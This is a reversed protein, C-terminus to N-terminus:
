FGAKNLWPSSHFLELAKKVAVIESFFADVAEIPGFFLGCVMGKYDRLVGGCGAKGVGSKFSGDVNFQYYEYCSLELCGIFM